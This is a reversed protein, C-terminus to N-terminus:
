CRRFLYRTVHKCRLYKGALGDREPNGNQCTSPTSSIPITDNDDQIDSERAFQSRLGAIVNDHIRPPPPTPSRKRTGGRVVETASAPASVEASKGVEEGDGGELMRLDERLAQIRERRKKGGRTVEAGRRDRGRGGGKAEDPEEYGGLVGVFYREVTRPARM